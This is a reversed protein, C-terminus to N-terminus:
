SELANLVHGNVVKGGRTLLTGKLIEDGMDINIHSEKVLSALFNSINKAYLQSAHCPIESPLNGPGIITVSHKRVSKNLQTLECNGGKEAALDIIVADRPMEKVMEETILIPAKKGPVSATSIVVDSGRLINSMLMRQNNYFNEDMEKAYGGEDESQESDIKLEVFKAGLSEVQDKVAARVDYAQVVAGLRKSTAIAQLGAVGGGIVFVKAPLLTGAATMLMPFIKNLKEAAILVAKYGAITAMSSLIDMSQARSIRPMLEMSFAVIGRAAAEAIVNPAYLPEFLGVVVQGEKMLELDAAYGDINAGLGRVQAIIDSNNFVESRSKAIRAGKAIYEENTFGAEVGAGKEILLECGIKSISQVSDPILAVRKEGKFTEKTIGVIM